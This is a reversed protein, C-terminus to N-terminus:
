IGVKLNIKNFQLRPFIFQNDYSSHTFREYRKPSGLLKTLFPVLLRLLLSNKVAKRIAIFEKGHYFTDYVDTKLTRDFTEIDM